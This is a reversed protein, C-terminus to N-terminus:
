KMEICARTEMGATVQKGQANIRPKGEADYLPTDQPRGQWRRLSGQWQKIGVVLPTNGKLREIEAIPHLKDSVVKFPKLLSYIYREEALKDSRCEDLKGAVEEMLPTHLIGSVNGPLVSYDFKAVAENIREPLVEGYFEIWQGQLPVKPRQADSESAKIGLDYREQVWDFCESVIGSPGLAEFFAKGIANNM